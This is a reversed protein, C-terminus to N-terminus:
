LIRGSTILGPDVRAPVLPPIDGWSYTWEGIVAHFGSVRSGDLRKTVSTDSTRISNCIATAWADAAYPDSAFVTVADAVGLSISPGVTASSTCIGRITKSPPVIFARKGSLPTEGAFLGVTLPRDGFFAIDGGNDIACFSAGADQVAGVGAAAVAGAVSAMPGVGAERSAEAMLRVVGGPTELVYPFFTVRFFPDRAIYAEIESRADMMGSVAAHIHDESEAVIAAYTERFAFQRRIM